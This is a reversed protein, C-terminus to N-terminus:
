WGGSNAKPLKLLIVVYHDAALGFGTNDRIKWVKYTKNNIITTSPSVDNDEDLMDVSEKTYFAKADEAFYGDPLQKTSVGLKQLDSGRRMSQLSGDLPKTTITGTTWEGDNNYYGDAEFTFTLQHTKLLRM